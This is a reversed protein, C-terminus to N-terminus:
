YLMAFYGKGDDIFCSSAGSLAKEIHLAGWFGQEGKAKM